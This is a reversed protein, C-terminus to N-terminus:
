GAYLIEWLRISFQYGNPKRRANVQILYTEVACDM